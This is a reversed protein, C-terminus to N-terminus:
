LTQISARLNGIVPRTLISTTGLSLKVRTLGTLPKDMPIATQYKVETWDNDLTKVDGLDFPVETWTEVYGNDGPALNSSDYEVIVKTVGSVIYQDLYVQVTGTAPTFEFYESIYESPFEISPEITGNHVEATAIQISPDLKPSRIGDSSSLYATIVVESNPDDITGNGYKNELELSYQSYPIIEFSKENVEGKFLTATFWVNTNTDLETNALLMLDCANNVVVPPFEITRSTDYTCGYIEFKIDEEQIATWTSNNSSNFMVGINYAQATLWTEPGTSYEKAKEGIRACRVTGIADDCMVVFSYETEAELVVKSDFQFYTGDDGLTLESPQMGKAVLSKDTSPYGNLMETIVVTTETTPLDDFYVKVGDISKTEELVFSQAVPDLQIKLIYKTRIRRWYNTVRTIINRVLPIAEFITSGEVGSTLARVKVDKVGSYHNNTLANAENNPVHFEDSFTGIADSKFTEGISNLTLIEGDFELELDEYSNFAGENSWIKIPIGPIIEQTASVDTTTTVSSSTRMIESTTDTKTFEHHRDQSNTAGNDRSAFSGNWNWRGWWINWSYLRTGDAQREGTSWSQYHKRSQIRQTDEAIVDSVYSTYNDESLWRYVRPEIDIQAEPPSRFMYENILRNKTYKPQELITLADKTSFLAFYDKDTAYGSPADTALLDMTDVNYTVWDTQLVLNESICIANGPELFHRNTDDRFTDVFSNELTATPNSAMINVVLALKSLNYENQEVNNHIKQIDSMIFVRQGTNTVVPEQGYVLLVEALNLHRSADTSKNAIPYLENSIGKIYELEGLSNTIITDIRPLMFSYTVDVTIGAVYGELYVQTFDDSINGTIGVGVGSELNRLTNTYTYVITCGAPTATLANLFRINNGNKDYDVDQTLEVPVTDHTWVSVITALEESLYVEGGATVNLGYEYTVEKQGSIESITYISSHALTYFADGDSFTIPENLADDTDIMEPLQIKQATFAEHNYGYVNISGESVDFNYPGSNENTDSGGEANIYTVKYGDVVYSGNSNRDYKAAINIIKRDLPSIKVVPYIEGQSVEYIPIYEKDLEDEVGDPYVIDIQSNMVRTTEFKLGYAGLQGFNDYEVAPDQLSTDDEVYTLLIGIEDNIADLEDLRVNGYDIIQEEVDNFFESFYIEGEKCKFGLNLTEANTSYTQTLNYSSMDWASNLEYCQLDPNSTGCVSVKLGNVCVNLGTPNSVVDISYESGPVFTTNTINWANTLTYKQIVASDSCLLFMITGTSDFRIKSPKLDGAITPATAAVGEDADLATADYFSKTYNTSFTQVDYSTGVILQHYVGSADLVYIIKGDPKFTFEKAGVIGLATFNYNQYYLASTLDWSVSLNYQHITNKSDIVFLKTGDSSMDMSKPIKIYRNLDLRIDNYVVTSDSLEWPAILDFEYVGNTSINLVFLKTGDASMTLSKPEFIRHPIYSKSNYLLEVNSGKIVQGNAIFDETLSKLQAHVLSQVENVETNQLIDGARFLLQKTNKFEDTDKRNYYKDALIDYDM